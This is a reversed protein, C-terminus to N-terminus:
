KHQYKLFNIALSSKDEVLEGRKTNRVSFKGSYKEQYFRLSMERTDTM